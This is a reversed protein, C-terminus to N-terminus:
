DAAVGPPAPAVVHGRVHVTMSGIGLISSELVDGPHVRSVGAPTGSMIIDGPYLTYWRSAWAIQEAIPSIMLGTNTKQRVTGNVKFELVLDQPDAIEDATVLWPGLVSYSDISKRLSRDQTGRVVMDLGLAYGAIYSLAEAQPIDSGRKGIVYALEAEHDTRLDPFRLAVGQSPGVLSTTSKLFLGDVYVPRIERQARLEEDHRGEDVHDQYNVPVGIIKGPNAVPSLLRVDAVRRTAVKGVLSQMRPRLRELNAVLQDGVPFPYGSRPIEELVTSVDHVVDGEIVGLRNDDYRCYKM